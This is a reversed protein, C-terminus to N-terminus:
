SWGPRASCRMASWWRRARHAVSFPTLWDWWGGAYARDEVQIGQVLAGLAIGQAFAAILSGGHVACDWLASGRETRWRFEFAVGRFILALLMAILPVYLAPM